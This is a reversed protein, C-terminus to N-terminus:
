QSGKEIDSIFKDFQEPHDHFYKMQEKHREGMDDIILKAYDKDEVTLLPKVIENTSRTVEDVTYLVQLVRPIMLICSVLSGIALIRVAGVTRRYVKSQKSKIFDRVITDTGSWYCKSNRLSDVAVDKQESGVMVLCRELSALKDASRENETTPRIICPVQPVDRGSKQKGLRVTERVRIDPKEDVVRVSRIAEGDHVFGGRWQNVSGGM